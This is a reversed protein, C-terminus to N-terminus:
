VLTCFNPLQQVPGSFFLYDVTGQDLSFNFSIYLGANEDLGDVAKVTLNLTGKTPLTVILCTGNGAEGLRGDGIGGDQGVAYKNPLTVQIAQEPDLDQIPIPQGQPTTLEMAVLTTSIPPDAATLLPNSGLETNMGFMVQVVESKQSKLHATLSTPIHFQCQRSSKSEDTALSQSPIIQNRNSQHTCLLDSPDGHFGVTNIFPTSLLLPAEGHVRSHMLSRMLAGAHGLASLAITSASQLTSSYAPHSSSASVSESAAALTSGPFVCFVFYEHMRYLECDTCSEKM